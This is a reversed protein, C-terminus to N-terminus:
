LSVVLGEAKGTGYGSQDDKGPRTREGTTQREPETVYPCGVAPTDEYSWHLPQRPSHRIYLPTV